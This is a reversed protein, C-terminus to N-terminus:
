NCDTTDDIVDQFCETCATGEFFFFFKLFFPHFLLLLLLFFLLSFLVSFPSPSVLFVGGERSVNGLVFSPFLMVGMFPLSIFFVVGVPLLGVSSFWFRCASGWRLRGSKSAEDRASKLQAGSSASYEFYLNWLM